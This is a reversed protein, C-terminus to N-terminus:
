AIGEMIQEVQLTLRTLELKIDSLPGFHLGAVMSARASTLVRALCGRAEYIHEMTMRLEERVEAAEPTM